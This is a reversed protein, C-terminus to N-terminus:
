CGGAHADRGALVLDANGTLDVAAVAFVAERFEKFPHPREGRVDIVLVGLFEDDVDTLLRHRLLLAVRRIVVNPSGPAHAVPPFELTVTSKPKEPRECEPSAVKTQPQEDDKSQEMEGFDFRNLGRGGSSGVGAM